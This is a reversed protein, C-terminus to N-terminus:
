NFLGDSLSTPDAMGIKRGASIYESDQRASYQGVSLALLIKQHGSHLRAAGINLIGIYHIMM